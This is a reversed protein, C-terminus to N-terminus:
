IEKKALRLSIRHLFLFASSLTSIHVTAIASCTLSSSISNFTNQSHDLNGSKRVNFKPFIM